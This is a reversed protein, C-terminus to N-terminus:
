NNTKEGKYLADVIFSSFFILTFFGLVLLAPEILRHNEAYWQAKSGWVEVPTRSYSIGTDHKLRIRSTEDNNLSSKYWSWVEVLDSNYLDKLKIRREGIHESTSNDSYRVFTISDKPLDLVPNKAATSGSSYIKIYSFGDLSSLGDSYAGSWLKNIKKSLNKSIDLQDQHSLRGPLAKEIEDYINMYDTLEHVENALQSYSPPINYTYSRTYVDVYAQSDEKKFASFVTVIAALMTAAGLAAKWLNSITM